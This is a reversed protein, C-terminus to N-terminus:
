RTLGVRSVPQSQTTNTGALSHSKLRKERSPGQKPHQSCRPSSWSGRPPVMLLLLARLFPNVVKKQQGLANKAHVACLQSLIQCAEVETNMEEM